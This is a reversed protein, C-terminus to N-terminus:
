MSHSSWGVVFAAANTFTDRKQHHGVNSLLDAASGNEGTNNGPNNHRRASAGSFSFCFDNHFLSPRHEVDSFLALRPSTLHHTIPSTIHSSPRRLLKSKQRIIAKIKAAAAVLVAATATPGFDDHEVNDVDEVFDDLNTEVMDAGLLKRSNEDVIEFLDLWDNSEQVPGGGSGGGPGGPTGGSLSTM